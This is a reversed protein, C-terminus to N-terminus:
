TVNLALLVGMMIIDMVACVIKSQIKIYGIIPTLALLVSVPTNFVPLVFKVVNNVTKQYGMMM